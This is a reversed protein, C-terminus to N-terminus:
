SVAGSYRKRNRLGRLVDELWLGGLAKRQFWRMGDGVQIPSRNMRHLDTRGYANPRTGAIAATDFRARVEREADASGLLAKPYAFHRCRLGLRDEIVGVSRAIEHAATAGSVRDLLCHTHTHSGIEVLGTAAADRLADWSMPVGADPFHAGTEIFQTALYVTAPLGRDVLEPVVEDAFDATGDDFTLAIRPKGEPARPSALLSAADDLTVTTFQDAILDLQARFLDSPLDVSVDTRRGVRHYILVVLGRRQSLRDAAAATLKVARQAIAGLAPTV